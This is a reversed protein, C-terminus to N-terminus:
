MGDTLNDHHLGRIIVQILQEIVYFYCSLKRNGELKWAPRWSIPFWPCICFNGDNEDDDEWCTESEVSLLPDSWSSTNFISMFYSPSRRRSGSGSGSSGHFRLHVARREPIERDWVAFCNVSQDGCSPICAQKFCKPNRLNTPQVGLQYM